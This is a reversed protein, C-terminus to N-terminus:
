FKAPHRPTATAFIARIAAADAEPDPGPWFPPHLRIERRAFDFTVPVVPCEGARAIRLFGTKLRDVRSRTGEPTIAIIMEDAWRLQRGIAEAIGVANRRDVAMGGLRRLLGAIPWRFLSHKGLWHIHMDLALMAVVGVIFDWNSTHPGVGLILKAAAPLEGEIRWRARRLAARALRVVLAPRRARHGDPIRFHDM